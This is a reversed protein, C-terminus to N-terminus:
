MPTNCFLGVHLLFRTRLTPLRPVRAPPSANRTACSDACSFAFCGRAGTPPYANTYFVLVLFAPTVASCHPMFTTNICGVCRMHSVYTFALLIVTPQTAATPPSGFTTLRRLHHRPRFYGTSFHYTDAPLQTPPLLYSHLQPLTYFCTFARWARLAYFRLLASTSVPGFRACHLFTTAAGTGFAHLAFTRGVPLTTPPCVAPLPYTSCTYCVGARRTRTLGSGALRLNAHGALIATGRSCRTAGNADAVFRLPVYARTFRLCDDAVRTSTLGRRLLRLLPPALLHLVSRRVPTCRTVPPLPLLAAIRAFWRDQICVRCFARQETRGTTSNHNLFSYVDHLSSTSSHCAACWSLSFWCRATRVPTIRLRLACHTVHHRHTCHYLDCGHLLLCRSNHLHFMWYRTRRTAHHAFHSLPLALTYFTWVFAGLITWGVTSHFLPCRPSRCAATRPMHFHTSPPLTFTHQPLSGTYWTYFHRLDM